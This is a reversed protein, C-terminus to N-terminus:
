PRDRRSPPPEFEVTDDAAISALALKPDRRDIRNQVVLFGVLLALLILPFGTGGGAAGVKEVVGQM